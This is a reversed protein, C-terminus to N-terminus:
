VPIRAIKDVMPSELINMFKRGLHTQTTMNETKVNRRKFYSLLEAHPRATQHAPKDPIKRRKDDHNGAGALITITM